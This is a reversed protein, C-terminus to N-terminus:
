SLMYIINAQVSPAAVRLIRCNHITQSFSVKETPKQLIGCFTICFAKQQLLSSIFIDLVSHNCDNKMRVKYLYPKVSPQLFSRAYMIFGM